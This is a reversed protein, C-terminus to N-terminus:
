LLMIVMFLVRMEYKPAIMETGDSTIYGYKNNKTIMIPKNPDFVANLSQDASDKKNSKLLVFIIIM